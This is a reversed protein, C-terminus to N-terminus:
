YRQFSWTMCRTRMRKMQWHTLGLLRHMEQTLHLSRDWVLDRTMWIAKIKGLHHSCPMWWSSKLARSVPITKLTKIIRWCLNSRCTCRRSWSRPPLRSAITRSLAVRKSVMLMAKMWLYLFSTAPKLSVSWIMPRLTMWLATTWRRHSSSQASTLRHRHTTRWSRPLKYRKTLSRLSGRSVRGM